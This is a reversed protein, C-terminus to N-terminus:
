CCWVEILVVRLRVIGGGVDFMITGRADGKALLARTKVVGGFVGM